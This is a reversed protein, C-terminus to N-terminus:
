VQSGVGSAILVWVTLAVYLVELWAFVAAAAGPGIFSMCFYKARQLSQSLHSKALLQKIHQMEALTRHMNM